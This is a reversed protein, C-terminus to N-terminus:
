GLAEGDFFAVENQKAGVLPFGSALGEAAHTQANGFHQIGEFSRGGEIEEPNDIKRKEGPAFFLLFPVGDMMREGTRAQLVDRKELGAFIAFDASQGVINNEVTNFDATAAQSDVLGIELRFHEANQADVLLLLLEEEAMNELGEFEARWRVTANSEAQIAEHHENSALITNAIHDRKRFVVSADLHHGLRRRLSIELLQPLKIDLARRLLRSSPSRM